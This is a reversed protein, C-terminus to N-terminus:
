RNRESTKALFNVSIQLFDKAQGRGTKVATGMTRFGGRVNGSEVLM